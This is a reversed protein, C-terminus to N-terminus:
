IFVGITVKGNLWDRAINVAIGVKGSSTLGFRDPSRLRILDGLECFLMNSFYTANYIFRPKKSINLLSLAEAEAEAEVILLTDKAEPELIQQYKAALTEDKQIKYYYEKDLISVTQPTLINALGTSQITWNKSYGLKAATQVELKQMIELSRHEIDNPGVDYVEGSTLDATINVLKFKGSIDTVLYCNASAAIRQCVELVNERASIFVGVQRSKTSDFDTFGSVLESESIQKGYGTLIHKITEAVKTLYTKVGGVLPKSGQVTATIAGFPSNTLSFTANEKDQTFQVPVGSDRVEVINEIEANHVKYKLNAADILIPTVNFCEGFCLPVLQDARATTGGILTTTLPENLAQLKNVLIFNISNRSRSDIDKILGSFIKYFDDRPWSTDGIYIDVPKNTWIYNLWSDKIGGTNDIEIDGYGINPQGNFDISETFTIGGVICTDYLQSTSGFPRNSLYFPTAILTGTSDYVGNIEVLIVRTPNSSSLWEIVQAKTKM